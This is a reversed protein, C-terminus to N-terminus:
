LLAVDHSFTPMESTLSKLIFSGLYSQIVSCSPKFDAVSTLYKSTNYVFLMTFKYVFVSSILKALRSISPCKSLIVGSPINNGLIM